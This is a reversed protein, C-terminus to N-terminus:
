QERIKFDRCPLVWTVIAIRWFHRPVKEYYVLLIDNLNIKPSNVNIKSM